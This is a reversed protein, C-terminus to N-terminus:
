ITLNNNEFHIPIDYGGEMGCLAEYHCTKAVFVCKGYILGVRIKSDQKILFKTFMQKFSKM